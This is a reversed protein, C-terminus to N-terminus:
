EKMVSPLIKTCIVDIGANRLNEKIVDSCSMIVIGAGSGTMFYPVGSAIKEIEAIYPNIHKAASVLANKMEKYVGDPNCLRLAEILAGNDAQKGEPRLRDYLRFCERTDVGGKYAILISGSFDSDFFEIKEGRGTLRAYGGSLMYPTDSGFLGAVYRLERDSLGLSFLNNVAMIVGACDASSGGLGCGCPIRNVVNIKVAPLAYKGSMYKAAKLANSQAANISKDSFEASFESCACVSVADALGVSAVVTDLLHYGDKMGTVNLSLNIKANIEVTETRKM